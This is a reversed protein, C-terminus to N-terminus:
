RLGGVILQAAAAFLLGDFRDLVGGQAPLLTGFDKIGSRRKVWSASLDGALAAGGALASTLSAEIGGLQPLPRLPLGTAVAAVLGGLARHITQDPSVPPALRHRGLAEGVVQSFGDFASVVLYVYVTLSPASSFAFAVLGAALVAYAALAVTASPLRAQGSETALARFLESGGVVSVLLFLVGIAGRGLWACALVAHVVGFYVAVKIWRERRKEASSRRNVFHIGAAGVAFALSTFALLSTMALPRRAAGPLMRAGGSRNAPSDGHREQL